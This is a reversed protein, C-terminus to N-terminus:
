KGLEAKRVAQREYDLLNTLTFKLFEEQTVGRELTLRGNADVRGIGSASILYDVPVRKVATPNSVDNGYEDFWVLPRMVNGDSYNRCRNWVKIGDNWCMLFVERQMSITVPKPHDYHEAFGGLVVGIILASIVLFMPVAPSSPKNKM